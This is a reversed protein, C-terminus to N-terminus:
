GQADESDRIPLFSHGGIRVPEGTVDFGADALIQRLKASKDGNRENFKDMAADHVAKNEAKAQDATETDGDAEADRGREYTPHTDEDVDAVEQPVIQVESSTKGDGLAVQLDHSRFGYDPDGQQFSDEEDIVPSTSKIAAVAADKAEPSDAVLRGALLDSHTNVPKNDAEVKRQARAKEKEPRVGHLQVGPVSDAVANLKDELEPAAATAADQAEDLNDTAHTIVRGTEPDTSGVPSGADAVSQVVPPGVQGAPVPRPTSGVPRADGQQSRGTTASPLNRKQKSDSNPKTSGSQDGAASMGDAEDAKEQDHTEVTDNVIKAALREAEPLGSAIMVKGHVVVKGNHASIWKTASDQAESILRSREEEPHAEIASRLARMHVIDLVNGFTQEPPPPQPNAPKGQVINASAREVHRALAAAHTMEHMIDRKALPHPQPPPTAPQPPNPGLSPLFTAVAAQADAHARQFVNPRASM